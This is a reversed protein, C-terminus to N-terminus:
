VCWASELPRLSQVINQAPRLWTPRREVAPWKHIVYVIGSIV